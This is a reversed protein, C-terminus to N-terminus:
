FLAEVFEEPHFPRLDDVGEGIGILKVPINLESKVAVVVGGKATGDLKTLVLGTVGVAENFMKAQQIVNQGSTADVVLLVEKPAEPLERNIIRKLKKLEEMLNTKTHLRGATDIILVDAKRAKAAQIADFVVAGPDAGAKHKVIQCSAREAWIELQEIAAARFTDAAALIVKYGKDTFYKAMKGISTTKGSGNVGVILIVYPREEPVSLVDGGNNNSLIDILEEKLLERVDKQVDDKADRLENRISSVITHSAKAGIDALILSEELEELTADDIHKSRLLDRTKEVINSRTKSLGQRLKDLYTPPPTVAQKTPAKEVVLRKRERLHRM